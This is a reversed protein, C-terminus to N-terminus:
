GVPISSSCKRILSRIYKFTTKRTQSKHLYFRFFKSVICHRMRWWGYVPHLLFVPAENADDACGGVAVSCDDFAQQHSFRHARPMGLGSSGRGFEAAGAGVM